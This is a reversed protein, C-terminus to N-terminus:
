MGMRKCREAEEEEERKRKSSGSPAVGNLLATADTATFNIFMPPGAKVPSTQKKVVKPSGAPTRRGPTSLAAPRAKRTPTTPM